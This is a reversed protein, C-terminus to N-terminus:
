SNDIVLKLAPNGRRGRLEYGERQVEFVRYAKQTESDILEVDDGNEDVLTFSLHMERFKNIKYRKKFLQIIGELSEIAEASDHKGQFIIEM